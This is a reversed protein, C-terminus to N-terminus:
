ESEGRMRQMSEDCRRQIRTSLPVRQKKRRRTPRASRILADLDFPDFELEVLLVRPGDDRAVDHTYLRYEGERALFKVLATVSDVLGGADEVGTYREEGDLTGDFGFAINLTAEVPQNVIRQAVALEIRKDWSAAWTYSCPPEDLEDILRETRSVSASSATIELTPDIPGRQERLQLRVRRALSQISKSFKPTAVPDEDLSEEEYEFHDDTPEDVIKPAKAILTDLRGAEEAILAARLTKDAGFAPGCWEDFEDLLKCRAKVKVTTTKGDTLDPLQIKM